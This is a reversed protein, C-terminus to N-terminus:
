EQCPDLEQIQRILFENEEKLRRNEQEITTCYQDLPTYYSNLLRLYEMLLDRALEGDVKRGQFERYDGGGIRSKFIRPKYKGIKSNM